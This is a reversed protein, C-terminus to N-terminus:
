KAVEYRSTWGPGEADKVPEIRIIQQDLVGVVAAAPDANKQNPVFWLKGRATGAIGLFVGPILLSAQAGNDVIM